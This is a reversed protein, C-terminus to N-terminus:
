YTWQEELYCKEFKGKKMLDFTNWQEELIPM